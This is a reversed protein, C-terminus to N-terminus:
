FTKDDELGIPTIMRWVLLHMDDELGTLTIMRWVICFTNEM